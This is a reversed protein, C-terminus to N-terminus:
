QAEFKIQPKLTTYNQLDRFSYIETRIKSDLNSLLTIRYIELVIICYTIIFHTNSLLTIRYIELVEEKTISERNYNSLLTIRYIELVLM